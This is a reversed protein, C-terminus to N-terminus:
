VLGPARSPSTRVLALFQRGWATLGLESTAQFPAAYTRSLGGASESIVTGGAGRSLEVEGFHAALYIRALKLKAASEGGFEDVVLCTNVHALINTRANTGVSSMAAVHDTVDTWTISAM